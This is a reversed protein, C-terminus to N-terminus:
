SSTMRGRVIVLLKALVWWLKLKKAAMVFAPMSLMWNVTLLRQVTAVISRVTEFSTYSMSFQMTGYAVISFPPRCGIM